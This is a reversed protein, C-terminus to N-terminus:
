ANEDTIVESPKATSKVAKPKKETVAPQTRHVLKLSGDKKKIYSGGQRAM